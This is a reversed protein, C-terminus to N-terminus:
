QKTITRLDLNLKLVNLREEGFLGLERGQVHKEILKELEAKNIGTAESVRDLQVYAAKPSIHPDLGSGSNTLLDNPVDSIKTEPNNKKWEIISEKTRNLMDENSPAYNNSGSGAGNYEISSVRGHFYGEETFTQGILESGIVKDNEDYILSGDAKHPAAAQAIGTVAVPYVLGCFAMLVLTMRIIPGIMSQKEEM